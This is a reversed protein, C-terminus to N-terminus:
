LKFTKAKKKRDSYAWPSSVERPALRSTESGLARKSGEQKMFGGSRAPPTPTADSAILLKEMIKKLKDTNSDGAADYAKRTKPFKSHLYILTM